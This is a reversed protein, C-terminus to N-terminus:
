NIFRLRFSVTGAPLKIVTNRVEGEYLGGDKYTPLRFSTGSIPNADNDFCDVIMTSIGATAYAKAQYKVFLYGGRPHFKMEQRGGYHNKYYCRQYNLLKVWRNSILGEFQGSEHARIKEVKKAIIRKVAAPNVYAIVETCITRGKIDQKAVKIEELYGSAITEVLDKKLQYKNVVSTSTVFTKYNEIAQRLAMAYAIDKAILLSESDGYTYCYEGRIKARDANASSSVLSMATALIFITWYPKKPM